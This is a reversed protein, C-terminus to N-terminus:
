NQLHIANPVCPNFNFRCLDLNGNVFVRKKIRMILVMNEILNMSHNQDMFKDGYVESVNGLLNINSTYIYGFYDGAANGVMFDYKCM